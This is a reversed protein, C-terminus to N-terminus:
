VSKRAIIYEFTLAIVLCQWFSLSLGLVAAGVGILVAELAIGGVTVLATGLAFGVKFSTSPEEGTEEKKPVIGELFNYKNRQEESTEPM